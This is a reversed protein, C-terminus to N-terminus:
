IHNDGGVGAYTVQTLFHAQGAADVYGNLMDFNDSRPYNNDEPDNAIKALYIERATGPDTGNLDAEMVMSAGIAPSTM